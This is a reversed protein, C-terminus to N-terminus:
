NLPVVQQVRSRLPVLIIDAFEPSELAIITPFCPLTCAKVLSWLGSSGSSCFLIRYLPPLISAKLSISVPSSIPGFLTQSGVSSM